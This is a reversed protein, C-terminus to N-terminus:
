ATAATGTQAASDSFLKLMRDLIRQRIAPVELLVEHEADELVVLEGRPWAAMRDYVRPVEIIKEEAGLFTVCPLDPSPRRSLNRAEALSERLWTLSPGGLALEPYIEIQRKMLAYMAPDRTLMNGEFPNAAVYNELRTTPPLMQGLGVAPAAYALAWGVPRLVPAMHIGWMPGTFVCSQVDLGNMVARLAIAGGMSHGLIHWPRPLNLDGALDLAARLDLQFDSFHAVHGIRRDELLRDALGQGRWDIVLTAIGHEALSKAFNGYKEVFETRGPCLILTANADKPGWVGVRIRVGDSANVWWAKGGPPGGAVDEHLPAPAAM